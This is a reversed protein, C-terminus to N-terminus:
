IYGLFLQTHADYIELKEKEFLLTICNTFKKLKQIKEFNIRLTLTAKLLCKVNCDGKEFIRLLFIM